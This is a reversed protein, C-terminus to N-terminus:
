RSYCWVGGYTCHLYSNSSNTSDRIRSIHKFGCSFKVELTSPLFNPLYIPIPFQTLPKVSIWIFQNCDNFTNSLFFLLQQTTSRNRLFGFEVPNIQCAIHDILKNYIIRELVKSMNSLLSIPRYNKVQCHDGSKFVPSIKHLKWESPSLHSVSSIICHNVYYQLVNTNPTDWRFGYSQNYWPQNFCLLCRRWHHNNQFFIYSSWWLLYWQKCDQYFYLIFTTTLYTLKIM